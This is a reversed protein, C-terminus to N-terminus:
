KIKKSTEHKGAYHATLATIKGSADQVFEIRANIIKLYFNNADEAFLPSKPLGGQPAEMQLQGDELTIYAHHKKDFQYTGVYKKLSDAPFTNGALDKTPDINKHFVIGSLDTNTIDLADGFWGQNCLLIVTVDDDPFYCLYSIFGPIGGGHTYAAKSFITDANIGYGYNNLHPTLMARWSAANLLKKAAIAQAWKYMDGTSSYIAGAAYSVTSDWRWAAAENQYTGTIEQYGTAINSDAINRFDFFSHNMQLPTFIIDRVNQEYLKGSVKEIILGLLYYGSNCYRYATGPEFYLDHKFMLDLVLQKDVPNCAIAADEEDIDAVYDYLGSTHTLLNELTIKKAYEVSPFYKSLTDQVSLRGEEQLKMVVAATFQKTVSGIQFITNSDNDVGSIFNKKGYSKQL